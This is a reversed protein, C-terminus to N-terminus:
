VSCHGALAGFSAGPTREFRLAKKKNQLQEAQHFFEHAVAINDVTDQTIKAAPTGLLPGGDGADRTQVALLLKGHLQSLVECVPM